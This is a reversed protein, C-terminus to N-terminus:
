VERRMDRMKKTDSRDKEEKGEGDNWKKKDWAKDKREKGKGADM